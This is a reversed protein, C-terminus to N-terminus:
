VWNIFSTQFNRGVGATVADGSRRLTLGIVRALSLSVDDVLVAPWFVTKAVQM